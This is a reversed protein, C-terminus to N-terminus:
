HSAGAKMKISAATHRANDQRQYLEFLRGGDQASPSLAIDTYAKAEPDRRIRLRLMELKWLFWLGPVYTGLIEKV